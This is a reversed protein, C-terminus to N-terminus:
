KISRASIMVPLGQTTCVGTTHVNYIVPVPALGSLTYRNRPVASGFAGMDVGNLGSGSAQSSTVLLYKADPSTSIQFLAAIQTLSLVMNGNTNGFQNQLSGINYQVIGASATIAVKANIGMLINNSFDSSAFELTSTALNAPGDFINNDCQEIPFAVGATSKWVLTKQCINNNFILGTPAIYNGSVSAFVNQNVTLPFFCQVIMPDNIGSGLEIKNEIRSRRVTIQNANILIYGGTGVGVFNMGIVQSSDSGIGFYLADIKADLGNNSVKPNNTLFYGPGIITLKKTLTYSNYTTTSGELHLTDGASFSTDGQVIQKFVPFSQTGGFNDGYHGTSPNYNSASNIRWIKASAKNPISQWLLLVIILQLVNNKKM